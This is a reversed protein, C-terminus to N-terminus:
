FLTQNSSYGTVASYKWKVVMFRKSVPWKWNFITIKVVKHGGLITTLFNKFIYIKLWKKLHNFIRSKRDPSFYFSIELFQNIKLSSKNELPFSDTIEMEFQISGGNTNTIRAAKKWFYVIYIAIHTFRNQKRSFVFGVVLFLKLKNM